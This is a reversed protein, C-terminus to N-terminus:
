EGHRALMEQLFKESEGKPISLSSWEKDKIMKGAYAMQGVHYANHALQREITDMVLHDEGRIKITKQLDEEKLGSISEFLVTWGHEWADIIEQKSLLSDIFEEERNRNPKEGDSHLFDTWRSVLNGGVHKVIVAISNSEQNFTWHLEETCLQELTKDGLKKISKLRDAIIRLYEVGITM